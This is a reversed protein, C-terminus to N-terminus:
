ICEENFFIQENISIILDGEIDVAIKGGKITTLGAYEHSNLLDIDIFLIKIKQQYNQNMLASQM